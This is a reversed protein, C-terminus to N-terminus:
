LSFISISIGKNNKEKTTISLFDSIDDPPWALENGLGFDVFTETNIVFNKTSTQYNSPQCYLKNEKSSDFEEKSSHSNPEDCHFERYMDYILAYPIYRLLQVVSWFLCM